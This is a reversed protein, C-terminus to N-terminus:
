AFGAIGIVKIRFHLDGNVANAELMLDLVLRWAERAVDNDEGLLAFLM